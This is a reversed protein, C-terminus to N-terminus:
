LFDVHEVQHEETLFIERITSRWLAQRNEPSLAEYIGRFDDSLVTKLHEPVQGAPAPMDIIVSAAQLEADLRQYESEYYNDDIRGKQFLLNLRDM